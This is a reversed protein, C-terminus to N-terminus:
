RNGLLGGTVQNVINGVGTVTPSSTVQNVTAGVGELTSNVTSVVTPAEPAPTTEVPNTTIPAPSTSEAPSGAASPAPPSASAGSGDSSSGSTGSDGPQGTAAPSSSSETPTAVSVVDPSAVQGGTGAAKEEDRSRAPAAAAPVAGGGFNQDVTLAPPRSSGVGQKVPVAPNVLAAGVAVTALSAAAAKAAGLASGFRFQDFLLFGAQRPLALLAAWFVVPWHGSYYRRFCRVVDPDLQTGAEADLLALAQKHAMARRYPRTSTVADFTDAVAVIRAGLPIQEGALGDPYGRGDLREHHHRVLATLEPDGLSAVMRAGVPAHQKVVEYEEASLPGRKDILEKPTDIKGVDHLVAATRVRLVEQRPLGMRKAIAAAHRAVRRSHGHTHPDRAELTRSLRELLRARRDRSLRRADGSSGSGPGVLSATRSLLRESRWRGLWGWVMLDGFVLDGSAARRKWLADGAFSAALSLLIAILSLAITSSVAGTARLALVAAIPCGVVLSTAVVVRPLQRM